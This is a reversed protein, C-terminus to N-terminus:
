LVSHMHWFFCVMHVGSFPDIWWNCFFCWLAQEADRHQLRDGGKTDKSFAHGWSPLMAKGFGYQRHPLCVKSKKTPLSNKPVLKKSAIGPPVFEVLTMGHCRPQKMSIASSPIMMGNPNWGLLSELFVKKISIMVELILTCFHYALLCVHWHFIRTKLFHCVDQLGTFKRCYISNYIYLEKCADMRSFVCVCFVVMRRNIASIRSVVRCTFFFCLYHSLSDVEVPSGGIEEMLLLDLVGVVELHELLTQETEVDRADIETSELLRELMNMLVTGNRTVIQKLNFTKLKERQPEFATKLDQPSKKLQCFITRWTCWRFFIGLFTWSAHLSKM